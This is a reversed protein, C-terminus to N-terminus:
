RRDDKYNIVCTPPRIPIGIINIQRSDYSEFGFTTTQSFTRGFYHRIPTFIKLALTWDEPKNDMSQKPSAM